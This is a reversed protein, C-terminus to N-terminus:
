NGVALAYPDEIGHQFTRIPESGGRAYVAVDNDYINAVYLNDHADMALAIPGNIGTKLRGSPKRGNPSYLSIWGDTKKWSAQNNAVYLTGHSDLILATPIALGTTIRGSPEVANPAYLEVYNRGESGHSPGYNLVYLNGSRDLALAGPSDLGKKITRLPSVSGPGEIQYVDITSGNVVYLENHPGAAVNCAGYDARIWGARKRAGPYLIEVAAGCNAVYIDNSRDITLSTPYTASQNRLLQLTSAKFATIESLGHIAILRGLRDLALGNFNGGQTTTRLPKTDDLRYQSLVGSGNGGAIYLFPGGTDAPLRASAGAPPQEALPPTGGGRCASLATSAALWLAVLAYRSM